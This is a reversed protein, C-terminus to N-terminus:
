YDQNAGKKFAKKFVRKFEFLSSNYFATLFAALPPVLGPFYLRILCTFFYRASFRRYPASILIHKMLYKRALKEDGKQAWQKALPIYKLPAVDEMRCGDRSRLNASVVNRTELDWLIQQVPLIGSWLGGSHKRYVAMTKDIYGVYGSRACLVTLAWDEIILECHFFWSPFEGLAGRRFVISSTHIFSPHRLIDSLTYREKKGPPYFSNSRGDEYIRKVSHFCFSCGTHSDLFGVQHQLKQPDTWYDDGDLLAIYEGKCAMITQALNSKVGMNTGSVLLRIKDPHKKQFDAIIERTRDSSCDDGIVIEYRSDTKQTLVSELAEAIFREHNYTVIAVSVKM